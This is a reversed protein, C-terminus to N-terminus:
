LQGQTIIQVISFLDINRGQFECCHAIIFGRLGTEEIHWKAGDNQQPRVENHRRAKLAGSDIWGQVKHHDVGMIECVERKTYWGDRARRSCHLRRSKVVVSNITRGLKHAITRPAYRTIMEQLSTEEELTWRRSKDQALGLKQVQGKVACLTIYEGSLHAIKTALLLATRNTGDYDRRVIDREEDTWKHKFASGGKIGARSLVELAM